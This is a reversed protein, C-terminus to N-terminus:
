IYMEISDCFFIFILKISSLVSQNFDFESILTGLRMLWYLLIFLWIYCIILWTNADYKGQWCSHQSPQSPKTSETSAFFFVMMMMMWWCIILRNSTPTLEIYMYCLVILLYSPPSTLTRIIISLCIFIFSM